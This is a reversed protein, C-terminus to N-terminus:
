GSFSREAFVRGSPRLDAFVRGSPRLDAFVRGSPRLVIPPGQWGALAAPRGTPAEPVRGRDAAGSAQGFHGNGIGRGIGSSRPLRSPLLRASNRAACPARARPAGDDLVTTRSLGVSEGGRHPMARAAVLGVRGGGNRRATRYRPGAPPGTHRLSKLMPASAGNRGKDAAVARRGPPLGVCAARSFVGYRQPQIAM